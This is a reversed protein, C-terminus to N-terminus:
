DEVVHLEFEHRLRTWHARDFQGDPSLCDVAGYAMALAHHTNDHAFLGQRGFTLLNEISDIWKDMAEFNEAYTRDYVPYAFPLRRTQIQRLRSTVPLGTSTLWECLKAGLADDSMGWYQDGPDSPLEACLVTHTKPETADYYNKTESLRSIPISEEPFYHADFETFRHQELVLYILIMGRFRISRAANQVAEPAASGAARVLSTIPLTSWLAGPSKSIDGEPTKLRISQVRNNLITMGEFRTRLQVDAGAKQAEESLRDCILGFGRKPYYFKGATSSKLGPVQGFIKKMLKPLSSGSVRRKALTPALESPQLGWLKRMYPFYFSECMTRGLGALLVSAFTEDKVKPARMKATAADFFLSAAFGTPLRTALDFPKLPFHIWRRQLRIRGHRPRLLMDEGLIAKLDALITPDSAPHLRHSGFDCHIGDIMFSGANGGVREGGEYLTVGHKGAQALKLTAGLGAPGGGLIAVNFRAADM